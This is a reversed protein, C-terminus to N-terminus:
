VVKQKCDQPEAHAGKNKVSFLSVAALASYVSNSQWYIPSEQGLASSWGTVDVQPQAWKPWPESWSIKTAPCPYINKLEAVPGLKTQSQMFVLLWQYLQGM